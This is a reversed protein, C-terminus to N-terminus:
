NIGPLIPSAPWPAQNAVASLEGLLKHQKQDEIHNLFAYLLIVIAITMTAGAYERGPAKGEM